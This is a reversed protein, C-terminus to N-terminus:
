KQRFILSRVSKVRGWPIMMEVFEQKPTAKIIEDYDTIIKAESESSYFGTLKACHAGDEYKTAVFLQDSKKDGLISILYTPPRRIAVNDTPVAVQQIITDQAM